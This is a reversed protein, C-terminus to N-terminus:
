ATATAKTRTRMQAKVTTYLREAGVVLREQGHGGPLVRVVEELGQQAAGDDDLEVRARVVPPDQGAQVPPYM